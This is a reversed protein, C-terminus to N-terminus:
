KDKSTNIISQFIKKAPLQKILNVAPSSAFQLNMNSEELVILGEHMKNLLNLNQVMLYSMKARIRVIYTILMSLTTVFVFCIVIIQLNTSFRGFSWNGGEYDYM